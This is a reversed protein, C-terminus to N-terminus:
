QKWTKVIKTIEYLQKKNSIYLRYKYTKEEYQFSLVNNFGEKTGAKYFPPAPEGEYGNLKCNLNNLDTILFSYKSDQWHVEIVKDSLIVFGYINYHPFLNAFIVSFLCTFAAIFSVLPNFLLGSWMLIFSVRVVWLTFFAVKNEHLSAIELKLM